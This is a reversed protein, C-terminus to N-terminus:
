ARRWRSRAWAALALAAAPALLVVWASAGGRRRVLPVRVEGDGVVTFGAWYFPERTARRGRVALQAERLAAGVTAGRSLARYFREMLPVTARDDVPWLTVVVAPVGASLFAASLGQIGEGSSVRGGATECGSLVALRAPLRMAAVTSARLWPDSVSDAAPGLLVGSRWPRQDNVETHAALHLVQYGALRDAAVLPSVPGAAVRSEVGRYSGALLRVERRTGPLPRGAATYAGALALLSEPGAPERRGRRLAALITASPVYQVECSELLARPTEGDAGGPALDALPLLCLPGDPVFIVRRCGRVLRKVGGLLAGGMARGSAAMVAADAGAGHGKGPATLLDRYLGVRTALARAGPLGAVLCEGRSVAFLYSTDQGCFADLLVEDAALTERQIRDLAVPPEGRPADGALTRGPDLMRERLTRAKFRQVQDFARRAREGRPLTRPYELLLGVLETYLERAQTGRAERWEPDQPVRREQEWIVAARELAALASDPQGLARRCRALSTLPGVRRGAVGLEALDREARALRDLAARPRGLALLLRGRRAEVTSAVVAPLRTGRRTAEATGAERELAALAAAPGSEREVVDALGLIADGRAPSEMAPGLALARRYLEGAERSRGQDLRTTALRALAKGELDAFGGQRCAALVTELTAAAEDLRRLHRQALALNMAPTIWGRAGEARELEHAREFHGVARGPDGLMFELSGLNNQAKAEHWRIGLRRAEGDVRAFCARAREFEGLDSWARGLGTLAVFLTGRDPTDGLLRVARVYGDRAAAPDGAILAQYALGMHAIGRGATDGLAAALALFERWRRAAEHQRGLEGLTVALWRTGAALTTSDHVARAQAIAERLLPEARRAGGYVVWMTGEVRALAAIEARDGRSRASRLRGGMLAHASDRRGVRNLSDAVRAAARWPESLRVDPRPQRPVAGAVAGAALLLAACATSCASWPRFRLAM